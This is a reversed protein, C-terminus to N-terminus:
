RISCISGLTTNESEEIRDIIISFDKPTKRYDMNTKVVLSSGDDSQKGATPVHNSSVQLLRSCVAEQRLVRKEVLKFVSDEVEGVQSKSLRVLLDVSLIEVEVSASSRSCWQEEFGTEVICVSLTGNRLQTDMSDNNSDNVESVRHDSATDSEEDDSEDVREMSRRQRALRRKNGGELECIELSDPFRNADAEKIEAVLDLTGTAESEFDRKIRLMRTKNGQDEESRRVKPRAASEVLLKQLHQDLTHNQTGM